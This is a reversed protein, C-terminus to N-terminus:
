SRAVMSHTWMRVRTSGVVPCRNSILITESSMGAGAYRFVLRGVRRKGTPIEVFIVRMDLLHTRGSRSRSALVGSREATECSGAVQV